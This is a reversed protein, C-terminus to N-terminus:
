SAVVVVGFGQKSIVDFWDVSSAIEDLWELKTRETADGADAADLDIEEGLRERLEVLQDILSLVDEATRHRRLRDAWCVDNFDPLSEVAELAAELETLNWSCCTGERVEHQFEDSLFPCRVEKSHTMGLPVRLVALQHDRCSCPVPILKLDDMSTSPKHTFPGLLVAGVGLVSAGREGHGVDRRKAARPKPRSYRRPVAEPLASEAVARETRSSRRVVPPRGARDLISDAHVRFGLDAPRGAPHDGARGVTPAPARATRM